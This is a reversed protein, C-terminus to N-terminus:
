TRLFDLEELVDRGLLDVSYTLDILGPEQACTPSTALIDPSPADATLLLRPELSEARLKCRVRGPNGKRERALGFAIWNGFMTFEGGYHTRPNSKYMGSAARRGYQLLIWVKYTWGKVRDEEGAM